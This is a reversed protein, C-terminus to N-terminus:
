ALSGSWKEAIRRLLLESRVRLRAAWSMQHGLAELAFPTVRALRHFPAGLDRHLSRVIDMNTVAMTYEGPLKDFVDSLEGMQDEFVQRMREMDLGSAATEVLTSFLDYPEQLM